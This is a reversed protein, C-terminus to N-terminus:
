GRADLTLRRFPHADLRARVDDRELTQKWRLPALTLLDHDPWCPLLAASTHDRTYEFLVRRGPAVLM